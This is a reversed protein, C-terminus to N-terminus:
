EQNEWFDNSDVEYLFLGVGALTVFFVLFAAFLGTFFGILVLILLTLWFSKARILLRFLEKTQNLFSNGDM